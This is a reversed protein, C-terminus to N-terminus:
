CGWSETIEETLLNREVAEVSGSKEGERPWVYRGGVELERALGDDVRREWVELSLVGRGSERDELFGRDDEVM